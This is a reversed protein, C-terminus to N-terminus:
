GGLKRISIWAMKTMIQTCLRSFQISTAQKKFEEIIRNLVGHIKKKRYFDIFDLMTEHVSRFNLFIRPDTVNASVISFFSEIYANKNPCRPPIFDDM